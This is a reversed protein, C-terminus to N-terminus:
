ANNQLDTLYFTYGDNIVKTFFTVMSPTISKGTYNDFKFIHTKPLHTMQFAFTLYILFVFLITRLM